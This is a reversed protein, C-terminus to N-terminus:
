FIHVLDAGCCALGADGDDEAEALVVVVAKVDSLAGDRRVTSDHHLAALKLRRVHLAGHVAVCSPGAQVIDIRNVTHSPDAREAAPFVHLRQELIVRDTQTLLDM